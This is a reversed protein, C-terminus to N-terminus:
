CRSIDSPVVLRGGDKRGNSAVQIAKEKGNFGGSTEIAIDMMLNSLIRGVIM